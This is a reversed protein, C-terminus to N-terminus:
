IPWFFQDEILSNAAALFGFTEAVKMWKDSLEQTAHSLMKKLRVSGTGM